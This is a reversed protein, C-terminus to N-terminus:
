EPEYATNVSPRNKIDVLVPSPEDFTSDGAGFPCRNWHDCWKESCLFHDTNPYWPGNQEILQAVMSARDMSRQLEARNRDAWRRDFNGDLQMIDFVFRTAPPREGSLWEWLYPWFTLYWGPQSTARSSEKGKKWPKSATKHDVILHIGSTRNRLVLDFTGHAAWTDNLPFFWPLEVAIVENETLNWLYKEHALSVMLKAKLKADDFSPGWREWELDDWVGRDMAVQRENDMAIDVADSLRQPSAHDLTRYIEALGAHYGTGGIRSESHGSGYEHDFQVRKLCVSAQNITSQRLLRHGAQRVGYPDLVETLLPQHRETSPPIQPEPGRVLAGGVPQAHRRPAAPVHGAPPPPLPEDHDHEVPPDLAPVDLQPPDPEHMPDSRNEVVPERTPDHDPHGEFPEPPYPKAEDLARQLTPPFPEDPEVGKTSPLATDAVRAPGGAAVVEGLAEMLKRKDPESMETKM